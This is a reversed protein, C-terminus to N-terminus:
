SKQDEIFIPHKADGAIQVTQTPFAFEIEEANFKRILELNFWESFEVYDWYAPPHFWYIIVMNLSDAKLDSFFARPPFNENMGKHDKLIEHIIALAREIKEPPTSYVLGVNLVRKIFKRKSINRITKTALAGNPITVQHGDLTDIRTSRLGVEKVLGDHGDVVIREDLEFPKDMLIMLSGFFHRISEQSALAIALGGIGLSAIISTIPKDSLFHAVQVLILVLLTVCLSTRVVPLLMDDMKTQTALAKKELIAYPVEILCYLAYGIALTFLISSVTETLEAIQPPTKLLKIGIVLGITLLLFKIFKSIAKLTTAVLTQKNEEFKTVSTKLITRIIKSAIFSILIIVFIALFRWLENNHFIIKNFTNNIDM